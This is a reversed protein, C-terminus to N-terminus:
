EPSCPQICSKLFTQTFTNFQPFIHYRQDTAFGGGGGGWFFIMLISFLKACRCTFAGYNGLGGGGKKKELVEIWGQNAHVHAVNKVRFGM